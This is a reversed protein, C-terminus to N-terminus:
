FVSPQVFLAYIRWAFSPLLMSLATVGGKVSFVAHQPSSMATLIDNLLFHIFVVEGLGPIYYAPRRTEMGQKTNQYGIVLPTTCGALFLGAVFRFLLISTPNIHRPHLVILELTYRPWVLMFLPSLNLCSELAFARRIIRGDYRPDIFIRESM